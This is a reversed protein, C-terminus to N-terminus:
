ALLDRILTLDDTKKLPIQVPKAPNPLSALYRTEDYPQPEAWCRYLIRIWKFALARVAAHHSKGKARQQDYFARAWDCFRTSIWAWEVFSQRLFKPCSRRWRVLHQRGSAVRVPAIGAYCQVERASGFRGRQTGFAAILRPTMVEGAGPLSSFITTEPHACTLETLKRDFEALSLRLAELQRVQSQVVLVSSDIVARDTVAPIAGAIAPLLQQRRQEGIGQRRLFEEVTRPKAQQLQELTPWKKLLEALVVHKVPFWDLVQPFYMKLQATLRNTCRTQQDVVDRRQEVLFQLTRTEVTDPELRRLRDRHQILLELILAADNPDSKAGSPYFSKRYHDLTNPHVPYLVLHAYKSLMFLLAGRSQELAVGIPQGPFRAALGAVFEEIAEPTHAVQGQEVQTQGAVRLAWDHKQDAWDLGL